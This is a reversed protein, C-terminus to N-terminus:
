DFLKSGYLEWWNYKSQYGLIKKAKDSSYLPQRGKLDKKFPVNEFHFLKILDKTLYKTGNDEMNGICFIENKGTLDKNKVALVFASAADRVDNYSFIYGSWVKNEGKGLLCPVLPMLMMGFNSLNKHYTEICRYIELESLNSVDNLEPNSSIPIRIHSIRLGIATIGYKNNFFRAIEECIKKSTGYVDLPKQPFDEDVPLYAPIFKDEASKRFNYGYTADSSAYIIKNIGIDYAAKFVNFTGTTNVNFVTEPPFDTIAGIIAALHVIVDANKFASRCDDINLINGKYCKSGKFFSDYKKNPENIDFITVEAGSEILEKVVYRGLFGLGGTVAVKLNDM